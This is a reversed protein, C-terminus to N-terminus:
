CANASSALHTELSFGMLTRREPLSTALTVLRGGQREERGQLNIGHEIVARPAALTMSGLLAVVVVAMVLASAAIEKSACRSDSRLKSLANWEEGSVIPMKDTKGPRRPSYTRSFVSDRCRLCQQAKAISLILRPCSRAVNAQISVRQQQRRTLSLHWGCRFSHCRQERLRIKENTLRSQGTPLTSTLFSTRPVV